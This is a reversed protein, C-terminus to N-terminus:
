IEFWVFEVVCTTAASGTATVLLDNGPDIINMVGSDVPYYGLGIPFTALITGNTSTSIGKKCTSVSTNTSGSRCNFPTVTTGGSVGTPATYLKFIISNTTDGAYFKRIGNFLSVSSTSPNLLYLVPIESTTSLTFLQSNAVYQNGLYAQRNFIDFIANEAIQRNTPFNPNNNPNAM